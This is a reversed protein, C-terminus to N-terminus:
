SSRREDSVLQGDRFRLQRHAYDAVDQEHTVLIVTIGQKGLNVLLEMIEISTKTDLAGTPEDALIVAPSCALARAIAVRQQQGGSLQMPKHDMREGLGVMKLCEEARDHIDTIHKRSYRLPLKVNTLASARGLLNFQQFVFGITENRIDALQDSSLASLEEGNILLSGSTPTDLAGILNMLTSKGSGSPGMIATMEGAYFDIDVGRLAHVEHDGVVYTKTVNRCQIIPKKKHALDPM